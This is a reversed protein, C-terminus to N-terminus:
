KTTVPGKHDPSNTLAPVDSLQLEPFCQDRWWQPVSASVEQGEKQEQGADSEAINNLIKKIMLISVDTPKLRIVNLLTM